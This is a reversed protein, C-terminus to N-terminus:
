ADLDQQEVLRKIEKADSLIEEAVQDFIYFERLTKSPKSLKSWPKGKCWTKAPFMGRQCGQRQFTAAMECAKPGALM